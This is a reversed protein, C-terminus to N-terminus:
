RMGPVLFTVRCHISNNTLNYVGGSICSTAGSCYGEMSIIKGKDYLGDDAKTDLSYVDIPSITSGNNVRQVDGGGYVTCTPRAGLQIRSFPDPTSNDIGLMSDKTFIQPNNYGAVWNQSQLLGSYSGEILGALALQQWFRLSESGGSTVPVVEILGDGDGSYTTSWYNQANILDGPLGNYQLKFALTAAKYKDITTLVSRLKSNKILSQGAVVGAAILGIIVIVISLEVLTFGSVYSSRSASFSCCSRSHISPKAQSPKAIYKM